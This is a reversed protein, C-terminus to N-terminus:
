LGELRPHAGPARAEGLLRHGDTECESLAGEDSRQALVIATPEQGEIGAHQRPRARGAGGAPGLVVGSVGFEAKCEEALRAIRERGKRGLTRGPAGACWEHCMAAAHAAVVPAEGIAEGPGQLGVQRRHPVPAVVVSRGDDAVAVGWPRGELGSWQRSARGQCAEAAVMVHAVRRADGWAEVGDLARRRQGSRCAEAGGLGAQDLGTHGWPAHGHVRERHEVLGPGVAGLARGVARDKVGEWARAGDTGWTAEAGHAFWAVAVGRSLLPLPLSAPRRHRCAAAGLGPPGPTALAGLAQSVRADCPRRCGRPM